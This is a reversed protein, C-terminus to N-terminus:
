EIPNDLERSGEMMKRNRYRRRNLARAVKLFPSLFQNKDFRGPTINSPSQRQVAIQPQAFATTIWEHQRSFDVYVGDAPTSDTSQLVQDFHQSLLPLARASIGMCHAGQVIGARPNSFDPVWYGGWFLDFGKGWDSGLAADTFDCDDELLLLSDGSAAIEKVVAYHSIFCGHEGISKWRGRDSPELAPFFSIRPDGDLGIRRFERAMDARRDNRKKLNIVVIRDYPILM